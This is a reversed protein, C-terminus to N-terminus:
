REGAAVAAGARPLTKEYIKANVFLDLIAGDLKGASAEDRLIDLAKDVPVSKKYPRDWAV